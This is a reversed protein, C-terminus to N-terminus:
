RKRKLPDSKTGANQRPKASPPRIVVTGLGSPAFAVRSHAIAVEILDAVSPQALTSGSEMGIWRTQTATGRLLKLPDPLEKARNFYLKVGDASARIAFVGEYGRESPSVSIVFFGNYEYVIEHATPLRKRLVQRMTNVLQQYAPAIRSILSILQTEASQREDAAQNGPNSPSM